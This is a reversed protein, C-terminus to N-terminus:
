CASSRPRGGSAQGRGAQHGARDLGARDLRGVRRPGASARGRGSRRPKPRTSTRACSTGSRTTRSTRTPTSARTDSVLASGRREAKARRGTRPKGYERARSRAKGGRGYRRWGATTPVRPQPCTWTAAPIRLCGCAMACAPRRLLRELRDPQPDAPRYRPRHGHELAWGRSAAILEGFGDRTIEKFGSFGDDRFTAAVTWGRRTAHGTGREIQTPVSEAADYTEFARTYARGLQAKARDAQMDDM